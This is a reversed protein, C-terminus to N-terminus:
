QFRFSRIKAINIKMFEDIDQLSIIDTHTAKSLVSFLFTFKHDRLPLKYFNQTM